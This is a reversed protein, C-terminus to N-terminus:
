PALVQGNLEFVQPDPNAETPTAEIVDLKLQGGDGQAVVRAYSLGYQSFGYIRGEWLTTEQGNVQWRITITGSFPGSGSPDAYGTLVWTQTGELDFGDGHLSINGSYLMDRFHFNGAGDTWVTGEPLSGLLDGTGSLAIKVPRAVVPSQISALLAFVLLAAMFVQVMRIQKM